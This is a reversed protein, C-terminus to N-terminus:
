PLTIHKACELIFEKNIDDNHPIRAIVPVPKYNLIAAETEPDFNGNLILGALKYHHSLLYDISLLTHNICGLYDTAVLIIETDFKESLEIIYNTENLPVLLGGAGEIILTNQSAPLEIASMDITVNELKAAHHPSLPAELLYAEKFFQSRENTILAKVLDADKAAESGTQVPKWYDARLAETLVASAVTKGVNTGIGTIFYRKM